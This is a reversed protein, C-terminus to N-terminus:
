DHQSCHHCETFFCADLCLPCYQTWTAVILCAAMLHSSLVTVYNDLCAQETPCDNSCMCMVILPIPIPNMKSWYLHTYIDGKNQRASANRYCIFMSGDNNWIDSISAQSTSTAVKNNQQWHRMFKSHRFFFFRYIQDKTDWRTSNRSGTVTASFGTNAAPASGRVTKHLIKASRWDSQFRCRRNSKEPSPNKNKDNQKKETVKHSVKSYLHLSANVTPSHIILKYCSENKCNDDVATEYSCM